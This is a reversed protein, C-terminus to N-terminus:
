QSLLLKMSIGSIVEIYATVRRLQQRISFAKQLEEFCVNPLYSGVGLEVFPHPMQEPVLQREVLSRIKFM